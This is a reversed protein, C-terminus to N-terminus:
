PVPGAPQVPVGLYREVIQDFVGEARLEDAARRLDRAAKTTAADRSCSLWGEMAGVRLKSGLMDALGLRSILADLMVEAGVVGNVRGARLMRLASELSPAPVLPVGLRDMLRAVSGGTTRTSAVPGLARVDEASALRTGARAVVALPMQLVPALPVFAIAPMEERGVGPTGPLKTGPLQTGSLRSDPPHNDSLAFVVTGARMLEDYLRLQPMVELHGPQGARRLIARAMDPMPGTAGDGEGETWLPLASLLFRVPGAEAGTDEPMARLASVRGAAAALAAGGSMARIFMRRDLGM